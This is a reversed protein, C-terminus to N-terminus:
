MRCFLSTMTMMVRRISSCSVHKCINLTNAVIAHEAQLLDLHCSISNITDLVYRLGLKCKFFPFIM